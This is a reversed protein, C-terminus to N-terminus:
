ISALPALRPGVLIAGECYTLTSCNANLPHLLIVIFKKIYSCVLFQNVFSKVRRRTWFEFNSKRINSFLAWGKYSSLEKKWVHLCVCVSEGDCKPSELSFIDIQINSILSIEDLFVFLLFKFDFIVCV